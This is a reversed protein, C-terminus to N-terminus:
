HVQERGAYTGDAEQSRPETWAKRTFETLKSSEKIAESTM